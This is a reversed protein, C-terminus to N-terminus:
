DLILNLKISSDRMWIRRIIIPYSADKIEFSFYCKYMIYTRCNNWLTGTCKRLNWDDFTACFNRGKTFWCTGTRKRSCRCSIQSFYFSPFFSIYGCAINSVGVTIGTWFIAYGCFLMNRYTNENEPLDWGVPPKQMKGVLIIAMIIGYIAVAECFIISILNKSRIRPAKVAAGCITAGCIFIGRYFKLIWKM